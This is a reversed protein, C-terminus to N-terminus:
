LTSNWPPDMGTGVEEFYEVEPVSSSSAYLELVKIAPELLYGFKGVNCDARIVLHIM